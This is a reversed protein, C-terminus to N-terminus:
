TLAWRKVKNSSVMDLTPLQEQGALRLLVLLAGRYQAAQNFLHLLMKYVPMKHCHRKSDYYQFVHELALVPAHELWSLWMKDQEQLAEWADRVTGSYHKGPSSIVEQLKMRQWWVSSAEWLSIVIGHIQDAYVSSAGKLPNEAVQSIAEQLLGNARAHYTAYDLLLQKM